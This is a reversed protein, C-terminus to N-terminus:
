QGPWHGRRGVWRLLGPAWRFNWLAAGDYRHNIFYVVAAVALPLSVLAFVVRYARAGIVAEGAPRCPASRNKDLTCEFRAAAPCLM